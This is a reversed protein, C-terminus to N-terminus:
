LGPSGCAATDWTASSSCSGHREISEERVRLEQIVPLIPMAGRSGAQSHGAEVVPFRRSRLRLCPERAAGTLNTRAVWTLTDGGTGRRAEDELAVAIGM